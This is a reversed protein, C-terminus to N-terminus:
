LGCAAAMQDEVAMDFRDPGRDEAFLARAEADSLGALRCAFTVAHSTRRQYWTGGYRSWRWGHAKLDDLM